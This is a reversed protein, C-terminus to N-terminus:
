LYKRFFDVSLGLARDAEAKDRLAQQALRREADLEAANKGAQKKQKDKARNSEKLKKTDVLGARLMQDQLSNRM